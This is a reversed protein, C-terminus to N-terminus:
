GSEQRPANAAPTAGTAGALERTCHRCVTATPRVLEACYPCRRRAGSRVLSEEDKEERGSTDPAMLALYFIVLGGLVGLMRLGNVGADRTAATEVSAQQPASQAAAEGANANSQIHSAISFCAILFGAGAVLASLRKGLLVGKM